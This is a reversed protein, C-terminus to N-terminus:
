ARLADAGRPGLHDLSQNPFAGLRPRRLPGLLKINHYRMEKEHRKVKYLRRM